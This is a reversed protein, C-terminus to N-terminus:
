EDRLSFATQILFLLNKVREVDFDEVPTLLEDSLALVNATFEDYEGDRLAVYCGDYICHLLAYVFPWEGTYGDCEKMGTLLSEIIADNGNNKVIMEKM